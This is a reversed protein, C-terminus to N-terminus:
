YILNYWKSFCYEFGSFTIRMFVVLFHMPMDNSSRCSIQVKTVSDVTLNCM